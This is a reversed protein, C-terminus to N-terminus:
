ILGCLDKEFRRLSGRRASPVLGLARAVKHASVADAPLSAGLSRAGLLRLARPTAARAAERMLGQGRQAPELFFDLEVEGDRSPRLSFRLWGAEVLGPKLLIAVDLVNPERTERARLLLRPTEIAFSSGSRIDGAVMSSPMIPVGQPPHAIATQPM